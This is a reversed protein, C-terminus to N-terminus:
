CRASKRKKGITGRQQVKRIYDAASPVKCATNGMDVSVRGIREATKIALDTLDSVYSGVSIVFGNMAYRVNDPADGIREAVRALLKKLEAFDLEGDERTAVWFGLTVWGTQAAAEDKADIWELALERGHPTEAAVAAVITGCITQSNATKLWRRLDAKTMKSEDAMIGALYQADYNRTEYLGLSLEHNTKVRKHIKKLDEIKVGFVPEKAGHNLLIKKYNASGLSELEKLIQNATM